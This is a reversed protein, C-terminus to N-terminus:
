FKGAKFKKLFFDELIHFFTMGWAYMKSYVPMALFRNFRISFNISCAFAAIIDFIFYIGRIKFGHRCYLQFKLIKFRWLNYGLPSLLVPVPRENTDWKKLIHANVLVKKTTEYLETGPTPCYIFIRYSLPSFSKILELNKNISKGTEKYSGLLILFIYEMGYKRLCRVANKIDIDAINKKYVRNRINEDASEIGLFVLSCGSESATKAWEETIIDARTECNWTVNKLTEEQQFRQCIGKFQQPNLGFTEDIFYIHEFKIHPYQKQFTTIENIVSEPSRTRYYNGPILRGVSPSACFTCQYPCGRSTLFMVDRRNFEVYRDIAFYDWAPFPLSDLDQIFPRLKNKVINKQRDKFWIGEVDYPQEGKEIKELYALFSIEGEGICVADVLPESLTEEAALTPHIGGWIFPIDPDPISEKILQAITISSQFNFTITSFGVVDPHFGKLRKLVYERYDKVHFATDILCVKHEGKVSAILYALGLNPMAQDYLGDYTLSPNVLLINMITELSTQSELPM